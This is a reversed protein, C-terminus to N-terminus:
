EVTRKRLGKLSKKQKLNSMRFQTQGTGSLSHAWNRIVADEKIRVVGVERETGKM